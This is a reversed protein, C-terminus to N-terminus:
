VQSAVGIADAATANADSSHGAGGPTQGQQEAATALGALSHDSAQGDTLLEENVQLSLWESVSADLQHRGTNDAQSAVFAESGQQSGSEPQQLQSAVDPPIPPLANMFSISSRLAPMSLTQTQHSANEFSSTETALGEIGQSEGATASLQGEVPLRQGNPHAFLGDSVPLQEDTIYAAKGSVFARNTGAAPPVPADAAKQCGFMWDDDMLSSLTKCPAAPEPLAAHAVM